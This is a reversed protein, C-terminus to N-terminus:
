MAEFPPEREVLWRGVSEGVGCDDRRGQAIAENLWRGTEDAMGFDGTGLVSDVDESTWGCLAIEFDHIVGSGNTAIASVYGRRMLDILLPALGTKVVHGGIGWLIARNHSRAAEISAAVARLSDAALLHPLSDLWRRMQRADEEALPRAFDRVTVKSPRSALPYTRLGALDVPQRHYISM